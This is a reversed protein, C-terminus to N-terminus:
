QSNILSDFAADIIKSVEGRKEAIAKLDTNTKRFKIYDELSRYVSRGAEQIEKTDELSADAPIHFAECLGGFPVCGSTNFFDDIIQRDETPKHDYWLKFFTQAELTNPQEPLKVGKNPNAEITM